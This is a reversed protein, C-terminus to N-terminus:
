AKFRAIGFWHFPYLKFSWFKTKFFYEFSIQSFIETTFKAATWTKISTPLASFIFKWVPKAEEWIISM